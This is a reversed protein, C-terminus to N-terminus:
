RRGNPWNAAVPAGTVRALAARVFDAWPADQPADELLARWKAAAADPNGDQEDALGLFYRPKPTTQIAPSRAKSPRSPKM